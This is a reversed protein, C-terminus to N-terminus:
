CTGWIIKVYMLNSSMQVLNNAESSLFQTISLCIKVVTVSCVPTAVCFAPNWLLLLSPVIMTVCHECITHTRECTSTCIHPTHALTHMAHTHIHM